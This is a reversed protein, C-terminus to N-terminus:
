FEYQMRDYHDIFVKISGLQGRKIKEKVTIKRVIDKDNDYAKGQIADLIAGEPADIDHAMSLYLYLIYPPEIDVKKCRLYIENKFSRYENTLIMRAIRKGAKTKFPIPTYKKDKGIIKINDIDLIQIM